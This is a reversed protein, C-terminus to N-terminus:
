VPRVWYALVRRSGRATVTVRFTLKFGRAEPPWEVADRFVGSIRHGVISRKCCDFEVPHVGGFLDVIQATVTARIPKGALDTVRLEYRWKANVKPTHTSAKLAAHFPPAAAGSPGALVLAALSAALVSRM